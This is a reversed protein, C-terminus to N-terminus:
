ELMGGAGAPGRPLLVSIPERIAGPAFHALHTLAAESLELGRALLLRGQTTVIDAALVMGLRLEARAIEAPRGCLNQDSLMDIFASLVTPDYEHARAQLKGPREEAAVGLTELTDYDVVLKLIRAELPPTRPPASDDARVADPDRFPLTHDRLIQRVPELYAVGALLDATVQPLRSVQELEDPELERAYYLREATQAPLTVCGLQSLMASVELAWVDQVGMRAAVDLVRRRLRDARGFAAPSSVALLNMLIQVSGRLADDLRTRAETRRVHEAVGAEVADRLLKPACPKKLFRFVQAENIAEIAAGADGTLVLRVTDPALDRARRLFGTGLMAPMRMDSVVVAFPGQRNLAALGAAGSTATLVEFRRRLQLALGELLAPEDDVLLVRHRSRRPM